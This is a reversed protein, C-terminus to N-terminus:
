LIRMKFTLLNHGIVPSMRNDYLFRLEVHIDTFLPTEKVFSNHSLIRIEKYLEHKLGSFEFVLKGNAKEHIELGTYAFKILKEKIEKAIKAKEYKNIM